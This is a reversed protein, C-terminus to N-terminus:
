KSKLTSVGLRGNETAPSFGYLHVCQWLANLWLELRMVWQLFCVPKLGKVQERQPRANWRLTSRRLCLSVCCASEWDVPSAVGVVWAKGLSTVRADCTEDLSVARADCTEELSTVRM